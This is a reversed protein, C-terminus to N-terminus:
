ADRHERNWRVIDKKFDAILQAPTTFLYGGERKGFHLHDGKGSENDYRVVCAGDVIYALRYKYRHKSGPVPRPLEWILIEAFSTLSDVIRDRVLLAAPM